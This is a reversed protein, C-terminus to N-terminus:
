SQTSIGGIVSALADGKCDCTAIPADLTPDQAGAFVMGTSWLTQGDGPLERLIGAAVLADIAEWAWQCCRWHPDNQVVRVDRLVREVDKGRGVKGLLMVAVLKTTRASTAKGEFKWVVRGDEIPNVVHFRTTDVVDDAPTKPALLLATHFPVDDAKASRSYFALYLRKKNHNLFLSM